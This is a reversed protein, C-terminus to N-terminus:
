IEGSDIAPQWQWITTAIAVKVAIKSLFIWLRSKQNELCIPSAYQLSNMQLANALHMGFCLVNAVHSAFALSIDSAFVKLQGYHLQPGGCDHVSWGGRSKERLRALWDGNGAARRQLERHLEGSQM